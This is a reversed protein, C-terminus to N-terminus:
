KRRSKLFEVYDMLKQLEEPDLEAIAAAVKARDGDVQEADGILMGPSVHLADAFIAIKKQPVDAGDKEIKSISSRGRYGCLTALEDQSMDLQERYFKIKQGITM